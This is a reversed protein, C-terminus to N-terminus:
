NALGRISHSEVAKEGIPAHRTRTWGTRVNAHGAHVRLGEGQGVGPQQHNGAPERWVDELLDDVGTGVHVQGLRQVELLHRETDLGHVPTRCGQGLRVRTPGEVTTCALQHRRVAGPDVQAVAVQGDDFTKDFGPALGHCAVRQAQTQGAVGLAVLASQILM